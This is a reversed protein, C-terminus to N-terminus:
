RNNSCGGGCPRFPKGRYHKSDLMKKAEDDSLIKPNGYHRDPPPQFPYKDKPEFDLEGLRELEFETLLGKRQLYTAESEYKYPPEPFVEKRPFHTVGVNICYREVMKVVNVPKFDEPKDPSDILWWFYPRTGPHKKIWDKTIQEGHDAWTEAPTRKDDLMEPRCTFKWIELSGLGNKNKTEGIELYLRKVPTLNIKNKREIRKTTKRPM